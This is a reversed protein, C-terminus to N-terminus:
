FVEVTIKSIRLIEGRLIGEEGLWGAKIKAEKVTLCDNFIFNEGAFSEIYWM